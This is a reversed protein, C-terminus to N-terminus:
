GDAGFQPKWFYSLNPENWIVVDNIGPVQVLADRVFSCYADRSADDQPAADGLAYVSLM